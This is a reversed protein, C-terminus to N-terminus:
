HLTAASSGAENKEGDQKLDDIMQYDSECM